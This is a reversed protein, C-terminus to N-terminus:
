DNAVWDQADEDWAYVGGDTPYPAINTLLNANEDIVWDKIAEDWAYVNQDTPYSIPAAWQCTEEDLIWSAFPKPPIFADLEDNYTYGIGAFNKRITANYSTRLWTGGLNDILWQYGEDGNPDNNDGVTVQLVINNDGIKAWHAM